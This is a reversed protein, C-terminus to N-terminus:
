KGEVIKDIDISKYRLQGGVEVPLLYGSKKWRWLTTDSVNLRQMVQDKTLLSSAAKSRAEKEVEVRVQDILRRGAEALDAAQVSVITGPCEKALRIIDVNGM